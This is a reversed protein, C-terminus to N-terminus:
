FNVANIAEPVSRLGSYGSVKEAYADKIVGCGVELSRSSGLM